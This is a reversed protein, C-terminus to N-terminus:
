NMLFIDPHENPFWMYFHSEAFHAYLLFKCFGLILFTQLSNIYFVFSLSLGCPM